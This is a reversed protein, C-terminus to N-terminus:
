RAADRFLSYVILRMIFTNDITIKLHSSLAFVYSWKFALMSQFMLPLLLLYPKRKWKRIPTMVIQRKKSYLHLPELRTKTSSSIYIKNKQLNVLAFNFPIPGGQTLTPNSFLQARKSQEGKNAYTVLGIWDV